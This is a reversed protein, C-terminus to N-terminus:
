FKFLTYKEVHGSLKPIHLISRLHELRGAPFKNSLFAYKDEKPICVVHVLLFLLWIM